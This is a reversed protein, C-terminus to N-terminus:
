LSRAGEEQARSVPVRETLTDEQKISFCQVAQSKILREEGESTDRKGQEDKRCSM